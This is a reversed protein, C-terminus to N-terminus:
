YVLFCGADMAKDELASANNVANIMDDHSAATDAAQGWSNIADAYRDCDAQTAPGDGTAGASLAATTTSRDATTQTTQPAPMATRSKTAASAAGTAGTLSLAAAIAAATITTRTKTVLM